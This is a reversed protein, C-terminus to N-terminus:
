HGIGAMLDVTFIGGPWGFIHSYNAHLGLQIGAWRWGIGVTPGLSHYSLDLGTMTALRNDSVGFLTYDVALIAEFPADLNLGPINLPLPLYVRPGLGVGYGSINGQDTGRRDRLPFSHTSLEFSAGLRHWRMQQAVTIGWGVGTVRGPEGSLVRMGGGANISASTAAQAPQPAVFVIGVVVVLAAAAAFQLHGAPRRLVFLGIVLALLLLIPMSPGGSATTCGGADGPFCLGTERDCTQGSSCQSSDTCEACRGYVNECFQGRSCSAHEICELTELLHLYELRHDCDGETCILELRLRSTVTLDYSSLREYIIEGDGAPFDREGLIIRGEDTSERPDPLSIEQDTTVRVTATSDPSKAHLTLEMANRGVQPRELDVSSPCDAREPLCLEGYSVTDVPVHCAVMAASLIAFALPATIRILISDRSNM